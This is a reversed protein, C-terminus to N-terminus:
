KIKRAEIYYRKDEAHGISFTKRPFIGKRRVYDFLENKEIGGFIFGVANEQAALERVADEGHIYDVRTDPNASIYEDIFRQLLEAELGNVFVSGEHDLGMYDVRRGEAGPFEAHLENIFKPVDVDFVVRYIPEFDVAEDHINVLEALAWRSEPTGTLESVAKATALSHNGDGVAFLLRDDAESVAEMMETLASLIRQQEKKDILWGKIHGGGLMLEFDYLLQLQATDIGEVIRRQRDDMLVMIHPLELPADKRIEVRPPIRSLVTGETPRIYPKAGQEFSYEDLAFAGIIGRRCKGNSLVREVLIMADKYENFVGEDLYRSMNANIREVRGESGGTELYVEPLVIHLCSPADGALEYAKEWYDPQSTFQDCAICAWKEFGTKPLLIDAPGFPLKPNM